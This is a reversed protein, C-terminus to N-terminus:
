GMIRAGIFYAVAGFLASALIELWDRDARVPKMTEIRCREVEQQQIDGIMAFLQKIDAQMSALVVNQAQLTALVKGFELPSYKEEPVAPEM